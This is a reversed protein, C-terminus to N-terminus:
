LTTTERQDKHVTLNSLKIQIAKQLMRRELQTKKGKGLVEKKLVEPIGPRKFSM